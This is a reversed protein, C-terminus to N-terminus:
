QAAEHNSAATAARLIAEADLAVPSAAAAGPARSHPQQQQQKGSRVQRTRAVSSPTDKREENAGRTAIHEAQQHELELLLRQLPPSASPATASSAEDTRRRRGGGNGDGRQATNISTPPPAPPELPLHHQASSPLMGRLHAEHQLRIRWTDHAAVHQEVRSLVKLSPSAAAHSLLSLSPAASSPPTYSSSAAAAAAAPTVGHLELNGAAASAAAANTPELACAQMVEAYATALTTLQDLQLSERLDSLEHLDGVREAAAALRKHKAAREAMTAAASPRAIGLLPGEDARAHELTFEFHQQELMRRLVCTADPFPLSAFEHACSELVPWLEEPMPIAYRRATLQCEHLTYLTYMLWVRELVSSQALRDTVHRFLARAYDRLEDEDDAAATAPGNRLPVTRLLWLHGGCLTRYHVRYDSLRCADSEPAREILRQLLQPVPPADSATAAATAASSPAPEM